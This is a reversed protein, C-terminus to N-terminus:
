ESSCSHLHFYFRSVNLFHLIQCNIENMQQASKQEGFDLHGLVWGGFHTSVDGIFPCM